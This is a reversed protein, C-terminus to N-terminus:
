FRAANEQILRLATEASQKQTPQWDPEYAMRRLHALVADCEEDTLEDWARRIRTADESLLEDWLTEPNM